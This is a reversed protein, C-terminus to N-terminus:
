RYLALRLLGVEAGCAGEGADGEPQGPGSGHIEVMWYYLHYYPM